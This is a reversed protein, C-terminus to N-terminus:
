GRGAPVLAAGPGAPDDVPVGGCQWGAAQEVPITLTPGRQWPLAGPAAVVLTVVEGTELKAGIDTLWGLLAGSGDVVVPRRRGLALRRDHREDERLARDDPMLVAEEGVAVVDDMAALRWRRDLLGGRRLRFGAVRREALDVLVESVRGLRRGTRVNLVPRGIMRTLQM